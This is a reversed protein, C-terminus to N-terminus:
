DNIFENFLLQYHRYGYEVAIADDDPVKGELLTVKVFLTKYCSLMEAIATCLIGARRHYFTHDLIGNSTCDTTAGLKAIINAASRKEKKLLLQEDASYLWKRLEYYVM